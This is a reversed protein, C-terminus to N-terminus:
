SVVVSVTVTVPIANVGTIIESDIIYFISFLFVTLTLKRQIMKKHM